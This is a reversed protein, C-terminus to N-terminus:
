LVDSSNEKLSNKEYKSQFKKLAKRGPEYCEVLTKEEGKAFVNKNEDIVRWVWSDVYHDDIIKQSIELRIEM